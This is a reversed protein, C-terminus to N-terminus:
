YMLALCSGAASAAVYLLCKKDKDEKYQTKIVDQAEDTAFYTEIYPEVDSLSVNASYKPPLFGLSNALIKPLFKIFM